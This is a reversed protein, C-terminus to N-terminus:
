FPREIDDPQFLHDRVTFVSDSSQKWQKVKMADAKFVFRRILGMPVVLICFILTLLIRSVITGLLHSLGLWAKALQTFITPITMDLVLLVIALLLFRTDSGFYAFLLSILVMAMGTDKAQEKSIERPIFGSM